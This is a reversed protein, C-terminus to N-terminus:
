CRGDGAESPSAPVEDAPSSGNRAVTPTFWDHFEGLTRRPEDTDWRDLGDLVEEFLVARECVEVDPPSLASEAASETSSGPSPLPEPMRAEDFAHRSM